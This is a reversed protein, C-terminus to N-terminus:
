NPGVSLGTRLWIGTPVDFARRLIFLNDPFYFDIVAYSFRNLASKLHCLMKNVKTKKKRKLNNLM